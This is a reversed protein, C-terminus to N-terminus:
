VIVLINAKVFPHFIKQLYAQLLKMVMVVISTNDMLEDVDLHTM